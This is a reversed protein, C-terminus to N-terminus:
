GIGKEEKVILKADIIRKHDLNLMTGIKKVLHDEYMNLTKDIYILKWLNKILEFKDENSYKENIISTFEYLSISEKIKQESLEILDNVYEDELEFTEKMVKIIKNREDETFEGDAKAMEVFLACTAIELKRKESKSNRTEPIYDPAEVEPSLIKRLYDLM